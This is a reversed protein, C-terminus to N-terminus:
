SATDAGSNKSAESWALPERRSLTATAARLMSSNLRLDSRFFQDVRL